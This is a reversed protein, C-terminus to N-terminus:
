GAPRAARVTWSSGYRSPHSRGLAASRRGTAAWCACSACPRWGCCRQRFAPTVASRPAAPRLTWAVNAARDLHGTVVLSAPDSDLRVALRQAPEGGPDLLWHVSLVGTDGTQVGPLVSPSSLTPQSDIALHGGTTEFTVAADQLPRGGARVAIRIPAALEVGPVASQGDGGLLILERAMVLAGVVIAATRDEGLHIRLSAPSEDGPQWWFAAEGTEGTVAQPEKDPTPEPLSEPRPAAPDAPAARGTGSPVAFVTVGSVPGCPSDVVVRVPQPVVEGASRVEQGDGGLLRLQRTTALRLLAAQVTADGSFAACGAPPDWAVNAARDLHGTVILYAPDGDLKITLRQTPQGGPDLRWRVSLIGTDGTKVGPLLSPSSLM